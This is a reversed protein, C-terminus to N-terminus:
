LLELSVDDVAWSTYCPDTGHPLNSTFAMDLTSANHELVAEAKVSLHDPTDRGCSDIGHKTCMWELFLPCWSHAHSWVPAADAVLLVAEGNWNDIFHVRASIRVKTHPPLNSYRRATTSAAFRCHGGLFSDHPSGCFGHDNLSWEPSDEKDDDFTDLSWLSWQPIGQVFLQDAVLDGNAEVHPLEAVSDSLKMKAVGSRRLELAGANVVMSAISADDAGFAAEPLVNAGADGRLHV